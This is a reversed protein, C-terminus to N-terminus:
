RKERCIWNGEVSAVAAAEEERKRGSVLIDLRTLASGGRVCVCM